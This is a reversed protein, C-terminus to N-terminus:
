PIVFVVPSLGLGVRAVVLGPMLRAKRKGRERLLESDLGPPAEAM